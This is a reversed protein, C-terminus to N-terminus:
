TASFGCRNRATKPPIIPLSVTTTGAGAMCPATTSYRWPTPMAAPPQNCTPSYKRQSMATKPRATAWSVKTTKAGHGCSGDNLVALSFAGGGDAWRVNDLIKVPTSRPTTTGDGLQGCDNWGWAYLSGDNLVALSHNSGCAISKVNSLIKVPQQRDTTTGDGLQGYQNKGLSWLTGDAMLVLYHNEGAAFREYNRTQAGAAFPMFLPALFLILLYLRHIM